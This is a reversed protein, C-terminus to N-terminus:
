RGDSNGEANSRDLLWVRIRDRDFLLSREGIRVCPVRGAIAERRLDAPRVGLDAAMISLSVLRREASPQDFEFISM